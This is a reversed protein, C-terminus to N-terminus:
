ILRNFYSNGLLVLAVVTFGLHIAHFLSVPSRIFCLSDLHPWNLLSFYYLYLFIYMLCFFSGWYFRFIDFIIFVLGIYFSVRSFPYFKKYVPFLYNYVGPLESRCCCNWSIYSISKNTCFLIFFAFLMFYLKHKLFQRCFGCPDSTSDALPCSYWKRFPYCLYSTIFSGRLAM